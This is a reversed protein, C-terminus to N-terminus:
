ASCDMDFNNLVIILALVVVDLPALINDNEQQHFMQDAIVDVQAEDGVFDGINM